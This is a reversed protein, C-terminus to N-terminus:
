FQLASCLYVVLPSPCHKTSLYLLHEVQLFLSLNLQWPIFSYYFISNWRPDMLPNGLTWLDGLLTFMIYYIQMKPPSGGCYDGIIMFTWSGLTIFFDQWLTEMSLHFTLGQLCRLLTTTECTQFCHFYMEVSFHLVYLIENLLYCSNVTLSPQFVVSKLLKWTQVILAFSDTM